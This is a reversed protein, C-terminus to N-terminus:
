DSGQIIAITVTGSSATVNLRIATVPYAYNTDANATAGNVNANNFWVVPPGKTIDDFSHQVSYTATASITCGIGVNFPKLRSDM